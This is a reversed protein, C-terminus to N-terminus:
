NNLAESASIIESIEATIGAQRAKNYSLVLESQLNKANDSANKMAVM